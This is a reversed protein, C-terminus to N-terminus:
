KGLIVLREWKDAVRGNPAKIRLRYIYVGRAIRNGFDDKGDWVVESSRNGVTNITQSLTKILKGSVTFVEVKVSLDLGPQNHEFWFATNTTFPNPYNLVHAVQLEEDNVVTFEITTENSNNM